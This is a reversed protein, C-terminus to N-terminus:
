KRRSLELDELVADSEIISNNTRILISVKKYHQTSLSTKDTKGEGKKKSM